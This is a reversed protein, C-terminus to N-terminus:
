PLVFNSAKTVNYLFTLECYVISSFTPASIICSRLPFMFAIRQSRLNPLAVFIVKFVCTIFPFFFFLHSPAWDFNFVKLNYVVSAVSHFALGCFPLFCKGIM